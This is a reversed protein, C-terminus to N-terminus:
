QLAESANPTLYGIQDSRCRPCRLKDGAILKGLRGAWSCTACTITRDLCDPKEFDPDPRPGIM